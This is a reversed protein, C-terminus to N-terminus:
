LKLYTILNEVQKKTFCIKESLIHKELEGPTLIKVFQYEQEPKHNIIVLLNKPSIQEEGWPDLFRSLYGQCIAQNLLAFLALSSRKIQKIPSFLDLDDMSNKSWNKTEILYLGTPGVLIHDIQVSYIFDNNRRDHIPRSFKYQFNNLITYEDPLRKLKDVVMQEGVAGYYLDKNARTTNYVLDLFDVEENYKEEVIKDFNNQRYDLESKLFSIEDVINKFPRKLEYDFYKEIWDKREILKKKKYYNKIKKFINNVKKSYVGIFWELEKKEQLLTEKRESLKKEYDFILNDIKKRYEDIEIKLDEVKKNKIKEPADKYNEVLQKIQEFSEFVNINKTKLNDCLRLFSGIQGYVQAM